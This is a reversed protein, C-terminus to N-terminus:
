YQSSQSTDKMLKRKGRKKILLYAFKKAFSGTGGTVVIIKSDLLNNM